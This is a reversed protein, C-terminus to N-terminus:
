MKPRPTKKKTKGIASGTKPAGELDFNASFAGGLTRAEDPSLTIFFRAQGKSLVLRNGELSANAGAVQIDPLKEVDSTIGRASYRTPKGTSWLILPNEETAYDVDPMGELGKRLELIRASDLTLRAFVETAQGIDLTDGFVTVDVDPATISKSLSPMM